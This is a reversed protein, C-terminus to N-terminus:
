LYSSHIDHDHEQPRAPLHVQSGGAMYDSSRSPVMCGLVPSCPAHPMSPPDVGRGSSASLSSLGVRAFGTGWTYNSCLRGEGAVPPRVQSGKHARM